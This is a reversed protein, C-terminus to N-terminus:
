PTQQSLATLRARTTAGSEGPELFAADFGSAALRRLTWLGIGAERHLRVYERVIDTDFLAPDDSAIVCRVGAALFAKVPHEAVSPVVGLAENSSICVEVVVRERVLREVLKLDEISRTGHGIREAGYVDLADRVSEPGAGEGAHAAVHLGGRRAEAFLPAFEPEVQVAQEDGAIDFGTVGKERQRLAVHLADKAVRAGLTRPFDVIHRAEVDHTRLAEASAAAIADFMAREDAGRSLHSTPTWRLEAYKVGGYAADALVEHTVRAFDDPTTVLDFLQLFFEVFASLDPFRYGEAAGREAAELIPTNRRRALEVVTAPRLAGMVHLHLDTKPLRRLQEVLADPTDPKASDNPM